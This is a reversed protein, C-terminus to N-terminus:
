HVLLDYKLVDNEIKLEEFERLKDKLQQMLVDKEQILKDIKIYSAELESKVNSINFFSMNKGIDTYTILLSSSVILLTAISLGLSWSAIKANKKIM